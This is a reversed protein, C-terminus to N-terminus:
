DLSDIIKEVTATSKEALDASTNALTKATIICAFVNSLLESLRDELILHQHHLDVSGRCNGNM